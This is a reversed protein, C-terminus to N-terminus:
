GLGALFRAAGLFFSDVPVGSSTDFFALASPVPWFPWFCSVDKKPLFVQLQM